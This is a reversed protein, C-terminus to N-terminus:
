QRNAKGAQPEEPRDYTIDQGYSGDDGIVFRGSSGLRDRKAITLTKSYTTNGDEWTFTVSGKLPSLSIKDSSPITKPYLRIKKGLSTVEAGDRSEVTVYIYRAPKINPSIYITFGTASAAWPTAITLLLAIFNYRNM